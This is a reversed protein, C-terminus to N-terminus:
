ITIRMLMVELHRTGDEVAKYAHAKLTIGYHYCFSRLGPVIVEHYMKKPVDYVVMFYQNNDWFFQTAYVLTDGFQSEEKVLEGLVYDVGKEDLYDKLQHFAENADCNPLRRMHEPKYVHAPINLCVGQRFTTSGLTVPSVVYVKM